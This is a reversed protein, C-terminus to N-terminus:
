KNKLSQLTRQKFKSLDPPRLSKDVLAIIFYFVNKLHVM